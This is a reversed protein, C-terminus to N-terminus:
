VGPASVDANPYYESLWGGHLGVSVDLKFPTGLRGPYVYIVPTELRMTVDPHCRPAGQYLVPVNAGPGLLLFQGIRHVFPPVPEDDANIGRIAEGAENQLCTFTGWAHITLRDSALAPSAAAAPRMIQGSCSLIDPQVQASAVFSFVLVLAESRFGRFLILRGM